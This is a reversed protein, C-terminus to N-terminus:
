LGKPRGLARGGEERKAAMMEGYAQLLEQCKAGLSVQPLIQIHTHTVTM